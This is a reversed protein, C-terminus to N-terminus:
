FKQYGVTANIRIPIVATRNPVPHDLIDVPYKKKKKQQFRILFSGYVGNAESYIISELPFGETNKVLISFM